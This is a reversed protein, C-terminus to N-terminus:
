HYKQENQNPRSRSKNTDQAINTALTTRLLLLVLGFDLVDVGLGFGVLGLGFDSACDLRFSAFLLDIAFVLNALVAFALGLV